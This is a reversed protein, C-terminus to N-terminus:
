LYFQKGLSIEETRIDVPNETYKFFFIISVKLRVQNQVLYENDNESRIQRFIFYIVNKGFMAM